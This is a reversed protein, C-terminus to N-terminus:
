IAELVLKWLNFSPDNSAFALMCKYRMCPLKARGYLSRKILKFKNNCGEVFGSTVSYTIANRVPTIDKEIGDCFPKFESDKYDEIFKDLAELSDGMIAAYFDHVAKGVTVLVPYKAKILEMHKGVDTNLTTKENCTLVYKTVSNRSVVEVDKPYSYQILQMPNQAKQEPFNNKRLTEIYSMLTMANGTYGCHCVYGYIVKADISDKLMKFIINVYAGMTTSDRRKYEATSDLSNIEDTSMALYKRVTPASVEFIVELECKKVKPNDEHYKQMARILQQKAMRSKAQEQYQLSDPDRNRWDFELPQGDEGLLLSNDYQMGAFLEPDVVPPIAVRKPAKDLIAGCKIFIEKPLAKNIIDRARDIINKVLHFKDAVQIASPRVAYIASAFASARDRAILRVKPHAMLWEKLPEGDRGDLMALLTHTNLDWIVTLYTQGKRIAVDDVGIEEVDLNDVFALEKYMRALSDNSLEAGIRSLVRSSTENGINTAIELALIIFRYTHVQSRRAFSMQENFVKMRCGPNKCKFSHANVFLWCGLNAFPTEQVRRSYAGHRSDSEEGCLPCKEKTKLSEVSIVINSDELEVGTVHYDDGYLYNFIIDNM